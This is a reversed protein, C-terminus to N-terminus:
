KKNGVKKPPRLGPYTLVFVDRTGVEETIAKITSTFHFFARDSFVILEGPNLIKTFIPDSNKHKYLSTAAGEIKQRNVSFIGIMEVGDRHIGEPAPCGIKEPNAITRIQHVSIEKAQIQEITFCQQCFEVFEFVLAQFDPLEILTRELEAFDRVVDGVLPNYKKSQFLPTHPLQIITEDTIKFSSLRRFRYNEAIYPDTPLNEFSRAIPELNIANLTELIYSDLCNFQLKDLSELM